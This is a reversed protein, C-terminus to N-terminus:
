PSASSSGNPHIKELKITHQMSPVIVKEYRMLAPTDADLDNIQIRAREAIDHRAIATGNVICLLQLLPALEM